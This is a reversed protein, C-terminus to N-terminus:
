FLPIDLPVSPISRDDNQAESIEASLSPDSISKRATKPDEADGLRQQSVRKGGLSEGDGEESRSSEDELDSDSLYDYHDTYPHSNSPFGENIDREQGESFSDSFV